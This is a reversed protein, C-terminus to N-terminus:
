TRKGRRRSRRHHGNLTAIAHALAVLETPHARMILSLIHTGTATDDAATVLDYLARQHPAPGQDARPTVEPLWPEPTQVTVAAPHAADRFILVVDTPNRSTAHYDLYVMSPHAHVATMFDHASDGSRM